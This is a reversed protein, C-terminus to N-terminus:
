NVKTTSTLANIKCEVSVVKDWTASEIMTGPPFYLPLSIIYGKKYYDLPEIYEYQLSITDGPAVNGFPLRFLDPVQQEDPNASESTIHTTNDNDSYNENKEDNGGNMCMFSLAQDFVLFNQM